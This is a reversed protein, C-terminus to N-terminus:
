THRRRGGQGLQTTQDVLGFVGGNTAGGGGQSGVSGLEADGTWNGLRRKDTGARGTMHLCSWRHRLIIKVAAIRRLAGELGGPQGLAELQGAASRLRATLPA